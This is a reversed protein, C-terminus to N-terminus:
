DMMASRGTSMEQGFSPLLSLFPVPDCQYQVAPVFPGTARVDPTRNPTFFSHPWALGSSIIPPLAKLKRETKVSDTPYCSPCIGAQLFCTVCFNDKTLLLTLILDAGYPVPPRIRSVALKLTM